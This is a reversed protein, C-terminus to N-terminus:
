KGHCRVCAPEQKPIDHCSMCSELDFEAQTAHDGGDQTVWGPRFHGAPLVNMQQHCANCDDQTEHCTTCRLDSLHADQGHRAVYNRPHPSLVQDGNHCSQCSVINSQGHCQNCRNEEEASAVAGHRSLWEVMHDRPTLKEWPMHCTACDNAAKRQEHCSMCDTMKPFHGVQGVALPQDLHAPSVHCTACELKARDLHLCHSFRESYDTIALQATPTASTHCMSCNNPAEVDHCDACQPHLPLLNTYGTASQTVGAHCAVCEMGNTEVHLTHSFNLEHREAFTKAKGPGAYVATAAVLALGATVVFLFDILSTTFTRTM